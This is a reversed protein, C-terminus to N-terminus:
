AILPTGVGLYGLLSALALHTGLDIGCAAYIVFYHVVSVMITEYLIPVSVPVTVPFLSGYTDVGLMGVM